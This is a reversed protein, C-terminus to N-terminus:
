ESHEGHIADLHALLADGDDFDTHRGEALEADVEREAAQHGESWYWATEAPIAVHPVLVLEGDRLVIEVQAGPQDLGLARRAQVPITVTGNRQQV